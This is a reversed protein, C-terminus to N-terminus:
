GHGRTATGTGDGTEKREKEEQEQLILWALALFGLVEYATTGARRAAAHFRRAGDIPMKTSLTRMNAKLWRNQRAYLDTSKARDRRNGDCAVFAAYRANSIWM